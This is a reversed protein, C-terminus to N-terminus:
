IEINKEKCYAALEEKSAVGLIQKVADIEYPATERKFCRVSDVYVIQKTNHTGM